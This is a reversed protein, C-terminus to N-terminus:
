LDLFQLKTLSTFLRPDLASLRNNALHLRKLATLALLESPIERLKLGSLDLDDLNEASAQKIRRRAEEINPEDQSPPDAGGSGSNDPAAFLKTPLPPLALM